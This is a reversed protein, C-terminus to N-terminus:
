LDREGESAEESSHSLQSADQTKDKRVGESPEQSSIAQMRRQEEPYQEPTVNSNIKTTAHVESNLSANDSKPELPPTREDKNQM